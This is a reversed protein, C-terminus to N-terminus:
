VSSSPRLHRKRAMRPLGRVIEWWVSLLPPYLMSLVLFVFLRADIFIEHVLDDRLTMNKVLMWVYNRLSYRTRSSALRAYIARPRLGWGLYGRRGLTRRHVGVIAPMYAVRWGARKLRWGLDVDEKYAFFDADFIEYADGLRHAVQRLADMRYMGCAGTVALLSAPTDFQGTDPENAGRERGNLTLTHVIGASDIINHKNNESLESYKSYESNESNGSRYLKGQAAGVRPDDFARLVKLIGEWAVEVDPDLTLVFPTTCQSFGINHAGAFGRNEPLEVVAAGSVMQRVLAVSADNSANDIYRIVVSDRPVSRLAELTRPLEQASNWGVLQITVLASM